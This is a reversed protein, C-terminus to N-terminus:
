QMPVFHFHVTAPITAVTHDVQQVDFFGDTATLGTVEGILTNWGAALDLEYHETGWAYDCRGDLHIDRDVVLWNVHVDSLHPMADTEHSAAYLTGLTACYECAGGGPIVRLEQVLIVQVEPDSAVLRCRDDPFIADLGVFADDDIADLARLEIEFRGDADLSGRGLEVPFWTVGLRTEVVVDAPMGLYDIATGDLTQAAAIGSLVLILGALTALIAAVPTRTRRANM